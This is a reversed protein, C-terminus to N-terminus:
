AAAHAAKRPAAEGGSSRAAPAAAPAWRARDAQRDLDDRLFDYDLGASRLLQLVEEVPRERAAAAAWAIASRQGSKCHALVRGGAEALATVTADVVGDTFVDHRTAPIYLYALGLTEALHRADAASLQGREEGDPRNNIIVRYGAEAARAFDDPQLQGAVAFDATIPIIKSM